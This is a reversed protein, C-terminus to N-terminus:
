ERVSSAPLGIRPFRSSFPPLEDSSEGTDRRARVQLRPRPGPAQGVGGRRGGDQGRPDSLVTVRTHLANRTHPRGDVRRVGLEVPHIDALQRSRVLVPHRQRGAVSLPRGPLRYAFTEPSRDCFRNEHHPVCSAGTGSERPYSRSFYISMLWPRVNSSVGALVRM